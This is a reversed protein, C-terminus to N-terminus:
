LESIIHGVYIEADGKRLSTSIGDHGGDFESAEVVYTTHGNAYGWVFCVKHASSKRIQRGFASALECPVVVIEIDGWKIITTKFDLHVHANKLKREYGRIESLLWKRDDFDTVTELKKELEAKRDALGSIDTEFDVVHEIDKASLEEVEVTTEDLFGAIRCAIGTTVRELELFDNGHRYLRNSIDGANGNMMLPELGLYKKLQRRVNGLLDASLRTETPDMVTSHCSMNCLAAVLKGDKKLEVLNVLQDGLRDLSNRNGYYGIVEGRRVTVTDFDEMSSFAEDIAKKVGDLVYEDYKTDAKEMGEMGFNAGTHTHTVSFVTLPREVGYREYVYDKIFDTHKRSVGILDVNIFCAKTGNIDLTLVHCELPDHVGTSLSDRMAHGVVKVPWTPTVDSSSRGFRKM